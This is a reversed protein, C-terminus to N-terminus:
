GLGEENTSVFFNSAVIVAVAVAVAVACSVKAFTKSSCSVTIDIM